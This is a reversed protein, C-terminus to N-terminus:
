HETQVVLGLRKLVPRAMREFQIVWYPCALSSALRPPVIPERRRPVAKLRTKM